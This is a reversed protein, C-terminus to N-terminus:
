NKRNSSFSCGGGNLKGCGCGGMQHLSYKSSLFKTRRAIEDLKFELIHPDKYYTVIDGGDDHNRGGHHKWYDENSTTSLDM